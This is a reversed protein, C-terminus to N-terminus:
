RNTLPLDLEFVAGTAPPADLLRLTGHHATAIQRSIALGLGSGGSDRSRADDLRTFREFIRDRDEPRVGPGDDSVRVVAREGSRHLSLSVTTTAHRRANDTLNRLVRALQGRDGLVRLAPLPTVVVSPGGQQRARVAAEHVLDDLDVEDRRPPTGGELRALLLLDDVLSQLRRQMADLDSGTARWTALDDRRLASELVAQMTALPSRLEHSADAVFQRQREGAEQLRALMANMTEALRFVEDHARPVPVREMPTAAGIAATTRRIRELPALARGVGLWTILGVVALVVPFTELLLLTASAVAGDVPQLSRAVVITDQGETRALVRFPGGSGIPLTGVTAPAGGAPTGTLAAEGQIDASAALVRGNRDIVQVLSADDQTGSVQAPLTGSQLLGAIDDARTRLAADIQGVLTTRLLVVLLAATLALVLGVAATAALTASTRVGPRLRNM